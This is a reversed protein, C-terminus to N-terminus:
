RGAESVFEILDLPPAPAETQSLMAHARGRHHTQDNFFHGLVLALPAACRDGRANRYELPRDLMAESIGAVMNVIHEDEALRAVELGVFDAYLIQDLRLSPANRGEIRAIWVRDTVLIRNLVAHLSGFSSAREGMYEATGLAGCARYLRRNAWANYRALMAFYGSPM